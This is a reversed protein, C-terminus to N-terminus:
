PPFFPRMLAGCLRDSQFRSESCTQFGLSPVTISTHDERVERQELREGRVGKLRDAVDADAADIERTGQDEAWCWSWKRALPLSFSDHSRGFRLGLPKDPRPRDVAAGRKQGVPEPQDAM